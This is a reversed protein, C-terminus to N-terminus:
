ELTTLTFDEREKKDTNYRYVVNLHEDSVRIATGDQLTIEYIPRTGQPYIGSVQGINGCGTFVETGISIDGMNVFGNVTLVKSSLPQAKGCGAPGILLFNRNPLDPQDCISKLIGTVVSQESVDDWTSPRYKNALAM